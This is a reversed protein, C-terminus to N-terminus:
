KTWMESLRKVMRLGFTEVKAKKETYDQELAYKSLFYCSETELCILNYHKIGNAYSVNVVEFAMGTERKYVTVGISIKQARADVKNEAALGTENKKLQDFATLDNAM